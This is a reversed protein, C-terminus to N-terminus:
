TSPVYTDAFRPAVNGSVRGRSPVHEVFGIRESQKTVKHTNPESHTSSLDWANHAYLVYYLTPGTELPFDSNETAKHPDTQPRVPVKGIFRVSRTTRRRTPCLQLKEPLTFSSDFIGPVKQPLFISRPRPYKSNEWLMMGWRASFARPGRGTSKSAVLFLYNM